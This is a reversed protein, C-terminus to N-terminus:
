RPIAAGQPSTLRRTSNEQNAWAGLAEIGRRLHEASPYGKEEPDDGPRAHAEIVKWGASTRRAEICVFCWSLGLRRVVEAGLEAMEDAFEPAPDYREIFTGRWTQRLPKFWLQVDPDGVVGTIEYQPGSVHEQVIGGSTDAELHELWGLNEAAGRRCEVFARRLDSAREVQRVGRSMDSAPAKFWWPPGTLPYAHPRWWRPSLDGLLEAQVLRHTCALSRPMWEPSALAVAFVAEECLPVLPGELEALFVAVEPIAGEIAPGVVVNPWDIRERAVVVFDGDPRLYTPSYKEPYAFVTM